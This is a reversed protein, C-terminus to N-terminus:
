SSRTDEYTDEGSSLYANLARQGWGSSAQPPSVIDFEYGQRLAKIKKVKGGSRQVYSAFQNADQETEIIRQAM